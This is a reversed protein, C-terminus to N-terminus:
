PTMFWVACEYITVDMCELPSRVNRLLEFKALSDLIVLQIVTFPLKFFVNELVYIVCCM